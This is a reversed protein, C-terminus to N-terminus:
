LKKTFHYGIDHGAKYLDLSPPCCFREGGDRYTIVEVRPYHEYLPRWPFLKYHDYNGMLMGPIPYYWLWKKKNPYYELFLTFRQHGWPYSVEDKCNVHYALLFLTIKNSPTDKPIEVDGGPPWAGLPSQWIWQANTSFYKYSRLDPKPPVFLKITVFGLVEQGYKLMIVPNDPCTPKDIARHLVHTTELGFEPEIYGVGKVQEWGYCLQECVETPHPSNVSLKTRRTGDETAEVIKISMVRKKDFREKRCDVGMYISDRICM